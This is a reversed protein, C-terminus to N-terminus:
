NRNEGKKTLPISPHFKIKKNKLEGIIKMPSSDGMKELEEKSMIEIPPHYTIPINEGKRNIISMNNILNLIPSQGKTEMKALTLNNYITTTPSAPNHITLKDYQQAYVMSTALFM